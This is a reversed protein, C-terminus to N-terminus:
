LNMETKNTKTLNASIEGVIIIEGIAGSLSPLSHALLGGGGSCLQADLLFKVERHPPFNDANSAFIQLFQSYPGLLM